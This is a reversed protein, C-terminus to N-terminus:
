ELEEQLAKLRNYVKNAIQSENFDLNAYENKLLEMIEDLGNYIDDKFEEHLKVNDHIDSALSKITKKLAENEQTLREINEDSNILNCLKQLEEKDNVFYYDDVGDHDYILLGKDGEGVEFRETM